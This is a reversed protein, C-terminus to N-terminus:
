QSLYLPASRASGKERIIILIIKTKETKGNLHIDPQLFTQHHRWQCLDKTATVASKFATRPCIFGSHLRVRNLFMCCLNTFTKIFVSYFYILFYCM